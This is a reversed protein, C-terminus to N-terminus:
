YGGNFVVIWSGSFSLLSCKRPSTKEAKLPFHFSFTILWVFVCEHHRLGLFTSCHERFAAQHHASALALARGRWPKATTSGPQSDQGVRPENSLVCYLRSQRRELPPHILPIFAAGRGIFAHGYSSHFEELKLYFCSELYDSSFFFLIHM